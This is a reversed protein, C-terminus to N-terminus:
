WATFDNPRHRDSDALSCTLYLSGRAPIVNGGYSYSGASPCIPEAEVFKADGVLEDRLVLPPVAASVNTGYDFGEMNSFSRVGMQVQRINMICQTRDSGRKWARATPFLFALLMMMVTIILALELLTVGPRM